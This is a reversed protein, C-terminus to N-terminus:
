LRITAEISPPFDPAFGNEELVRRAVQVMDLSM